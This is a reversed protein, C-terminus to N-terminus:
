EWKFKMISITTCVISIMVLVFSSVYNVNFGLQANQMMNIGQTLPTFDVIKKMVTLMSNYPITMGSFLLMGFYLLSAIILARKMDKALGGVLMGISFMSILVIMYTGLFVFINGNFEVNFILLGLISSLILSTIVYIFYMSISALLIISPSVPTAKM